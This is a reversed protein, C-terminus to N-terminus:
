SPEQVTTHQGWDWISHGTWVAGGKLPGYRNQVGSDADIAAKFLLGMQSRNNPNGIVGRIRDEVTGQNDEEYGLAFARVMAIYLNDMYDPITVETSGQELESWKARYIFRLKDAEDTVPTPWIEVRKVPRGAFKPRGAATVLNTGDVGPTPSGVVVGSALPVAHGVAGWFHHSSSTLADTRLALLDDWSTMKLSDVLSEDAEQAISEGYDDPLDIAAFGDDSDWNVGVLLSEGAVSPLGDSDKNLASFSIDEALELTDDDVKRVVRVTQARVDTDTSDSQIKIQDGELHEYKNLDLSDTFSGAGKTLRLTSRDFNFTSGGRRARTRARFFPRVLYKWRWLSTMTEGSQNLIRLPSIDEPVGGDLAHRLHDLAESATITM